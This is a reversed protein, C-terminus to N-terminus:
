YAGPRVQWCPLGLERWASVMRDRDELIFLIDRKMAERSGFYRELLQIKLTKDDTFDDDPRM